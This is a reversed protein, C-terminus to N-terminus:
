RSAATIAKRWEELEAPTPQGKTAAEAPEGPTPAQAHAAPTVPVSLLSVAAVVGLTKTGRGREFGFPFRM